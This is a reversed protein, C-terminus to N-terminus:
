LIWSIISIGFNNLFGSFILCNLDLPGTSKIKRWTKYFVKEEFAAVNLQSSEYQLALPLRRNKQYNQTQTSKNPGKM